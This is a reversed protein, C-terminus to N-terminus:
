KAGAEDLEVAVAGVEHTSILERLLLVVGQDRQPKLEERANKKENKENKKKENKKENKKRRLVVCTHCTHCVQTDQRNM